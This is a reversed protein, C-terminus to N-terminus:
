IVKGELPLSRAEQTPIDASGAGPIVTANVSKAAAEFERDLDEDSTGALTHQINHQEPAHVGYINGIEKLAAMQAVNDDEEIKRGGYNVGKTADLKKILKEIYKDITLAQYELAQQGLENYSSRLKTRKVTDRSIGLEQATQELTKNEVQHKQFVQLDRYTLSDPLKAGM